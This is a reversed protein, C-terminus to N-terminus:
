ETRQVGLILPDGCPFEPPEGYRRGEDEAASVGVEAHVNRLSECLQESGVVYMQDVAGRVPGM